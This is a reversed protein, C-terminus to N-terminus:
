LLWKNAGLFYILQLLTLAFLGLQNDKQGNATFSADISPIPQRERERKHGKQRHM